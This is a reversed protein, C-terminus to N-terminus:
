VRDGSSPDAGSDIPRSAPPWLWRQIPLAGILVAAIALWGLVAAPAMGRSSLQDQYFESLVWNFQAGILWTWLMPIGLALLCARLVAIPNREPNRLFLSAILPVGIATLLWFFVFTGLFWFTSSSFNAIECTFGCEPYVRDIMYVLVLGVVWGGFGVGM